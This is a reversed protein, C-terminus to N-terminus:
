FVFDIEPDRERYNKVTVRQFVSDDRLAILKLFKPVTNSVPANWAIASLHKLQPDAWLRNMREPEEAVIADPTKDSSEDKDLLINLLLTSLEAAVRDLNLFYVSPLSEVHLSGVPLEGGNIEIDVHYLKKGAKLAMRRNKQLVELTSKRGFVCILRGSPPKKGLPVSLSEVVPTSEEVGQEELFFNTLHVTRM